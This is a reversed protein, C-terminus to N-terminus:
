AGNTIKWAWLIGELSFLRWEGEKRNYKYWGEEEYGPEGRVSEYRHIWPGQKRDKQDIRNLTDNNANLKYDKWLQAQTDFAILLCLIAIWRMTDPKILLLTCYYRWVPRNM